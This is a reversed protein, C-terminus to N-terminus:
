TESTAQSEIAEEERLETKMAQEDEILWMPKIYNVLCGRARMKELYTVIFGKPRATKPLVEFKYPKLLARLNVRELYKIEVSGGVAKIVNISSQDAGSVAIDIKYPFPYNNVNFLTVGYKIRPVCKCDLLHRMTIPYRTDLRGREIFYRLKSLSLPAFIFKKKYRQKAEPWFPVRRFLPHNGTHEYTRKHPSDGKQNVNVRNHNGRGIPGRKQERRLGRINKTTIPWFPKPDYSFRSNLPHPRYTGDRLLGYTPKLHIGQKPTPPSLCLRRLSRFLGGFM